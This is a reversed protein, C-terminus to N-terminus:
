SSSVAGRDVMHLISLRGGRALTAEHCAEITPHRDIHRIFYEINHAHAEGCVVLLDADEIHRSLLRIVCYLDTLYTPIDLMVETVVSVANQRSAVSSLERLGEGIRNALGHVEGLLRDLTKVYGGDKILTLRHSVEGRWFSECNLPDIYHRILIDRAFAFNEVLLSVLLRGMLDPSIPIPMQRRLDFPIGPVSRVFSPDRGEPEEEELVDREVFIRDYSREQICEKARQTQRAHHCEGVITVRSGNLPISKAIHERHYFCRTRRKHRRHRGGFRIDNVRDEAPFPDM